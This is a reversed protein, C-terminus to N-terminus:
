YKSHLVMSGHNLSTLLLSGDGLVDIRRIKEAGMRYISRVFTLDKESFETTDGTTVDKLEVLNLKLYGGSVEWEGSESVSMMIQINEDQNKLTIQTDRSYTNDPLFVMNSQQESMTLGSADRYASEQFYNFTKSKWERSKLLSATRVDEGLFIWSSGLLSILLLVFPCYRKFQDRRRKEPTISM